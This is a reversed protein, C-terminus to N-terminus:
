EKMFMGAKPLQIGNATLWDKLGETIQKAVQKQFAPDIIRKEDDKNSLFAIEVLCNSYETPGSLGFNFSGSNGYENLGIQLMRNYIYQSLSRFGIYRYYTGAGRVTDYPDSNLHLSILVDPNIERMMLVRDPMTVDTDTTRTMIVRFGNETLVAQLQKAFQLTYVKEAVKTTVGAAGVNSGGHGADVAVTFKNWQLIDKQQKVTILLGATDYAIHYGWIQPHNLEIYVRMVDDETQEYWAAKIEKATNLQTIRNTNSVAGFIDLVIRTPSLQQISRYPLKDFTKIHIYDNISDGRIMWKDTLYYPKEILSSDKVVLSKYIYASHYKSLQVKYNDGASDVIKLIINSDLYTMKAGGLRDEGLGYDLHPINGATKGLWFQHLSDQTFTRQVFAFCFLCIIAYKM